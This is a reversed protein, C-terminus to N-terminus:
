HNVARGISPGLDDLVALRGSQKRTMWLCSAFCLSIAPKGGEGGTGWSQPSENKFNERIKAGMTEFM